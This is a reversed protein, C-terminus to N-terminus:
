EESEVAPPVPLWHTPHWDNAGMDFGPPKDPGDWHAYYDLYWEGDCFSLVQEGVSPLRESVPIPPMDSSVIWRALETVIEEPAM